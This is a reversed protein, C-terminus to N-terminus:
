GNKFMLNLESLFRENLIKLENKINDSSNKENIIFNVEYDENDRIIELKSTWNDKPGAVFEYKAKEILSDKVESFVPTKWHSKNISRYIGFIKMFNGENFEIKM